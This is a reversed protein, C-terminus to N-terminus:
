RRCHSFVGARDPSPNIPLGVERVGQMEDRRRSRERWKLSWAVEAGRLIPRRRTQVNM